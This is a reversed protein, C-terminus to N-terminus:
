RMLGQRRLAALREQETLLGAFPSVHRLARSDEDDAGLVQLVSEIPGSLLSVWRDIYKQSYPTTVRMRELRVRAVELLEPQRLLKKGVERHLVKSRLDAVAQGSAAVLYRTARGHGVRRVRGAARLEDLRRWLTPQSVKPRLQKRLESASLGGPNLALLGLIQQEIQIM